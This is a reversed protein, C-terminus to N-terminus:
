VCRIRKASTLSPRSDLAWFYACALLFGTEALEAVTGLTQVTLGDLSSNLYRYFGILVSSTSPRWSSPWRGPSSCSSSSCSRRSSCPASRAAASPRTRRVRPALRHRSFIIGLAQSSRGLIPALLVAFPQWDPRIAALGASRSSCCRAWRRGARGPGAQRPGFGSGAFTRRGDVLEAVARLHIGGTMGELLAVVGVCALGAPPLRKLGVFALVLISGMGVGVLPFFHVSRGLPVHRKFPIPLVTLYSLANGLSMLCPRSLLLRGPLHLSRQARATGEAQRGARLPERHPPGGPARDGRGERLLDDRLLRIPILGEGYPDTISVFIGFNEAGSVEATFEDGIYQRLVWATATKLGKREVKMVAIERESIREAVDGAQAKM